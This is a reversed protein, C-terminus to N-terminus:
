GQIYKYYRNFHHLDCFAVRVEKHIPKYDVWDRGVYHVMVYDKNCKSYWIQGISPKPNM